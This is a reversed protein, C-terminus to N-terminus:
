VVCTGMGLKMQYGQSSWVSVSEAWVEPDRKLALFHFVETIQQLDCLRPGPGQAEIARAM